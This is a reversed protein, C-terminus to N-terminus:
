LVLNLIMFFVLQILFYHIIVKSRINLKLLVFYASFFLAILYWAIYNQAPVINGEWSWYNLKMAVPELIFDFLVAFLPAVLIIFVPKNIIRRSILIAGLIVLVWNFGIILPTDFVKLGLPSGYTYEGFIYGTKVGFVELCFTLVYTFILWKIIESNKKVLSYIVLGGTFLLTLPTLILMLERLPEIIHGTIGVGYM